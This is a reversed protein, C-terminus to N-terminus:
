KYWRRLCLRISRILLVSLIGAVATGSLIILLM